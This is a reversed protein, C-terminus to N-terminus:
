FAAPVPLNSNDGNTRLSSYLSIYSSTLALLADAEASVSDLHKQSNHHYFLLGSIIGSLVATLAMLTYKSSTKTM